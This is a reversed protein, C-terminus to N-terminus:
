GPASSRSRRRLAVRRAATVSAAVVLAALAVYAPFEHVLFWYRTSRLSWRSAIAPAISVAACPVAGLLGGSVQGLCGVNRGRVAVGYLVAYLLLGLMVLGALSAHVLRKTGISAVQAQIEKIDDWAYTDVPRYIWRLVLGSAILGILAVVMLAGLVDVAKEVWRNNPV